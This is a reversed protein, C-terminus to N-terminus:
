AYLNILEALEGLTPEEYFLVSAITPHPYNPFAMGQYGKLCFDVRECESEQLFLDWSRGRSGRKDSELMSFDLATNSERMIKMMLKQVWHHNQSGNFGKIREVLVSKLEKKM